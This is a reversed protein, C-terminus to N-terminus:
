PVFHEMKRTTVLERFGNILGPDSLAPCASPTRREPQLGIRALDHGRAAQEIVLAALYTKHIFSHRNWAEESAEPDAPSWAQGLMPGSDIGADVRHLSAGLVRASAARAAVVAGIGPFGPLLSPHINLTTFAGFLEESVLRSFSLLAATAGFRKIEGAARSSFALRDPEDIRCTAISRVAAGSEAGCPRDVIVLIDAATVLGAAAALDYAQLVSGGGASCIIALKM